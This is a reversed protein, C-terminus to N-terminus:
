NCPLTFCFRSGQRPVGASEVWIRGGMAIVLQKCIYLGLGTGRVSSVRDRELRVFKEFLLQIDDARIGPGKDKVWIQVERLQRGEQDPTACVSAGIEIATQPPSYKIANALLNCLIQYVYQEDAKITLDEPIIVELPYDQWKGPEFIEIARQVVPAVEIEEIQLALQPDTSHLADLVMNVLHLLEGSGHLAREIFQKQAEMDLQGHYAELLELYGNLETLPTRLEHNVNLLLQDKLENLQRQQEYASTLEKAQEELRSNKDYLESQMHYLTQNYIYGEHIYLAQRSLLLVSLLASGLYVGEALLGQAGVHWIFFLLGGVAPVFLSPLLAQWFSAYTSPESPNYNEQLQDQEQKDNSALRLAQVALAILLYGISDGIIVENRLLNMAHVIQYADISDSAILITLGLLLLWKTPQLVRKHSLIGLQLLCYCLLLDGFPHATGVLKDITTTYGHFLLLPGLLFYWSFTILVTIILLGDLILRLRANSSLPRSPLYLIALLLCPYRLLDLGNSWYPFLGSPSSGQIYAAICKTIGIVLFALGIWFPVWYQAIYVVSQSKDKASRRPWSKPLCAFCFVAGLFLGVSSIWQQGVEASKFSSSPAFLRQLFFISNFALAAVVGIALWPLLWKFFKKTQGRGTGGAQKTEDLDM